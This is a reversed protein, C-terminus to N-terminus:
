KAAIKHAEEAPVAAESQITTQQSWAIPWHGDRHVFVRVNYYPKGGQYPIHKSTTVVADGFDYMKMSLIPAGPAGVGSAEERKAIEVREPKNRMSGNNIIEFEDAVHSAWDAAKPHWEDVKTHQWETLVAKDAATTPTYPVTRCPNVCEGTSEPRAASATRKESPMPTDIDIFVRWGGPRKVWLRLFRADHHTGFLVDLQGYYHTKVDSDGENDTAFAKLDALAAAKRRTKGEADTWEFNTDLMGAVAKQDSKALADVLAHDAQVAAQDNGNEDAAAGTSALWVATGGLVSCVALSLIAFRRM